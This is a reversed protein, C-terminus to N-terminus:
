ASHAADQRLLEVVDHFAARNKENMEILAEHAHLVLRAKEQADEDGPPVDRLAAEDFTHEDVIVFAEDFGMSELVTTLDEGNAVIAPNEFRKERALRAIKALLGLCTSDIFGIETMDIVFRDAQNNAFVDRILADLGPGLTHRVEGIMKIFCERDQCAYLIRADPM